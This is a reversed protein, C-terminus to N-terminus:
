ALFEKLLLTAGNSVLKKHANGPSTRGIKGTPPVTPQKNLLLAHGGHLIIYREEAITLKQGHFEELLNFVYRIFQRTSKFQGEYGVPNGSKLDIYLVRVAADRCILVVCDCARHHKHEKGTALLSSMQALPGRGEDPSLSFWDGNPVQLTVKKLKASVDTEQILIHTHQDGRYNTCSLSQWMLKMAPSLM